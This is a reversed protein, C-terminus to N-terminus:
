YRCTWSGKEAERRSLSKRGTTEGGRQQLSQMDDSLRDVLREGLVKLELQEIGLGRLQEVANQPSADGTGLKRNLEATRHYVDRQLERLLKLEAMSTALRSAADGGGNGGGGTDSSQGSAFEEEALEQRLALAMRDLYTAIQAQHRLIPAGVTGMRLRGVVAASLQDIRAHAHSFLVSQQLQDGLAAAAVRIDAEDNGLRHLEMRQKRSLNDMRTFPETGDRIQLQDTALKEYAAKLEEREKRTEDMQLQDQLKRLTELCEILRDLAARQSM